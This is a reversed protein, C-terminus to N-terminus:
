NDLHLLYDVQKPMKYFMTYVTQVMENGAIEIYIKKRAGMFNLLFYIGIGQNILINFYNTDPPVNYYM